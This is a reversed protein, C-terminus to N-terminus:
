YNVAIVSDEYECRGQDPGRWRSREPPMKAERDRGRAQGIRAAGATAISSQARRAVTAPVNATAATCKGSEKEVAATWRQQTTRRDWNDLLYGRFAQYAPQYSGAMAEDIVRALAPGDVKATYESENPRRAKCRPPKRARGTPAEAEVIGCRAGGWAPMADPVIYPTWHVGLNKQCLECWGFAAGADFDNKLAGHIQVVLAGPRMYVCNWFTSGFLTVLVRTRRFLRVEDLFSLAQPNVHVFQLRPQARAFYAKLELAVAEEDAIRRGNTANASSVFLAVDAPQREDLRMSCAVKLRFRRITQENMPNAVPVDVLLSTRGRLAPPPRQGVCTVSRLTEITACFPAWPVQEITIGARAHRARFLTALELFLGSSKNRRADILYPEIFRRRASGVPVDDYLSAGDYVYIRTPVDSVCDPGTNGFIAETFGTLMAYLHGYKFFPLWAPLRFGVTVDRGGNSLRRLLGTACDGRGRPYRLVSAYDGPAVVELMESGSRNLSARRAQGELWECSASMAAARSAARASQAVVRASHAGHMKSPAPAGLAHADALIAARQMQM